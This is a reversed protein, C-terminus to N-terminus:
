MEMRHIIDGLSKVSPIMLLWNAHKEGDLIFETPSYLLKNTEYGYAAMPVALIGGLMNVTSSPATLEVTEGMLKSLATVSSGAIINGIEAMVSFHMDTMQTLDEVQEGLMTSLIKNAFPLDYVFLLIGDVGGTMRLLVGGAPMEENGIESLADVYDLVRTCPLNIRVETSLMKSLADAAHGTCINMIEKMMDLEQLNLEGYDKM